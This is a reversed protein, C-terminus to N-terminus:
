AAGELAALRADTRHVYQKLAEFVVASIRDYDMMMVEGEDDLGIAEPLVPLWDDAILGVRAEETAIDTYRVGHLADNLVMDLADDMVCINAKARRASQVAFASAYCPAWTGQANTMFWHQGTTNALCQITVNGDSRWTSGNCNLQNSFQIIGSGEFSHVGPQGPRSGRAQFVQGVGDIKHEGEGNHM